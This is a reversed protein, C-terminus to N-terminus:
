GDKRKSWMRNKRLYLLYKYWTYRRLHRRVHRGGRVASGEYWASERVRDKRIGLLRLAKHVPYNDRLERQSLPAAIEQGSEELVDDSFQLSGFVEAEQRSPESMFLKLLRYITQHTKEPDMREPYDRMATDCAADRGTDERKGDGPVDPRMEACMWDAQARIYNLIRATEAEMFERRGSSVEECVPRYRGDAEEYGITMGHPASFVGEFLCNSFYVKERLGDSPSFYFCHYDAARVGEPLEYLGWYYGELRPAGDTDAARVEQSERCVSMGAARLYSLVEGLVKQMSGVWGSDVLAAPVDELLGEQRLFGALAPMAEESHRRVLDCFPECQELRRRIQSLKAYPIIDGERGAFGSLSLIRKEEAATLGARSLIKHMTVDIGGRCIYNMAEDMNLHFMPIRVSYRSCYLYRCEIPLGFRGRYYSAARYMLYGDRALFYLRQKGSAIAERLVWLVFSHLAPALVCDTVAEFSKRQDEEFSLLAAYQGEGPCFLTGGPEGGPSFAAEREATRRPLCLEPDEGLCDTYRKLRAKQSDKWM